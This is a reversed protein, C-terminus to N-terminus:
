AISLPPKFIVSSQLHRGTATMRIVCGDCGYVQVLQGGLKIQGGGGLSWGDLGDDWALLCGWWRSM